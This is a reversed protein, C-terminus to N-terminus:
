LLTISNNQIASSKEIGQNLWIQVSNQCQLLIKVLNSQWGNAQVKKEVLVIKLRNIDKTHGM